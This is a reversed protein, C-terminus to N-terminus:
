PQAVTAKSLSNEIDMWIYHIFIIIYDNDRNSNNDYHHVNRSNRMTTWLHHDFVLLMQSCSFIDEVFFLFYVHRVILVISLTNCHILIRFLILCEIYM